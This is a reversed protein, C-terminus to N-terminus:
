PENCCQKLLEINFRDPRINHQKMLHVIKKAPESKHPIPSSILARLVASFLKADPKANENGNEYERLLLSLIGDVKYVARPDGCNTHAKMTATFAVIKPRTNVEGKDAREIWWRLIEEAKEGADPHSSRSWGNILSGYTHVTPKLLHDGDQYRRYMEQFITHAQVQADKENSMGHANILTAYTISDPQVSSNGGAVLDFMIGVLRKCHPLAESPRAKVWTNLLSNFTIVNPQVKNGGYDMMRQLIAQAREPADSKRSGTWAAVVTNFSISDPEVKSDLSCMEDLLAEAARANGTKSYFHLLSNMTILDAEVNSDEKMRNYLKKVRAASDKSGSKTWAYILTNYATIDPSVGNDLMSDLMSEAEVMRGDRVLASMVTNFSYTDPKMKGDRIMKTELFDKARMAAGQSTSRAWCALVSNYVVLDLEELEGSEAMQEMLNLLREGREGSQSSRKSSWGSLVVGYTRMTPKVTHNGKQFEDNMEHLLREAQEVNNQKAYADIVTNWSISNAEVGREKMQRLITEAREASGQQKSKSFADLLTSYSIVSPREDLEGSAYLDEMQELLAEARDMDGARALAVLLGNFAPLSPKLHDMGVQAYASHMDQLLQEARDVNGVQAWADIATAYTVHNPAVDDWEPHAEHLEHMRDLWAEVKQPADPHKSKVWANMLSSFTYVNPQMWPHDPAEQLIWRVLRDAVVVGNENTSSSDISNAVVFSSAGDVIMAFTQTNPQVKSSSSSSSEEHYRIVRDVMAQPHLDPEKRLVSYESVMKRWHNLILNLLDTHFFDPLRSSSSDDGHDKMLLLAQEEEVLRDFLQLPIRISDALPVSSSDNNHNSGLWFLICSHAEGWASFTLAGVESDKLIRQTTQRWIKEM